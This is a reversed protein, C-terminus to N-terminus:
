EFPYPVRGGQPGQVQSEDAQVIKRHTGVCIVGDDRTPRDESIVM